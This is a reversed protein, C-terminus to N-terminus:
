HRTLITMHYTEEYDEFHLQLFTTINVICPNNEISSSACMAIFLHVSPPTATPNKTVMNTADNVHRNSALPCELRTWCKKSSRTIMLKKILSILMSLTRLRDLHTTPLRTSRRPHAMLPLNLRHHPLPRQLLPIALTLISVVKDPKNDTTEFFPAYPMEFHNM